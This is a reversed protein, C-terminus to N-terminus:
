NSKSEYKGMLLICIASDEESLKLEEKIFTRNIGYIYRAGLNMNAAALYIHQTMAGAAVSAFHYALEKDRSYTNQLIEMDTTFILSCPVTKAFEQNAIDKRIDNKSIEILKHNEKDYLYVGSDDAVYIKCYPKLGMGMPVTWGNGDRNRGSAAWLIQSLDDNDLKISPFTGSKASERLNFAEYLGIGGDKKPEPLDIDASAVSVFSFVMLLAIYLMKM